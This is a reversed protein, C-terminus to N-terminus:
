ANMLKSIATEALKSLLEQLDQPKFAEYIDYSDDAVLVTLDLAHQYWHGPSMAENRLLNLIEKRTLGVSASEDLSKILWLATEECLSHYWQVALVLYRSRITELERQRKVDEPGNAQEDLALWGGPHTLVKKLVKRAQEANQVVVRCSERKNRVFEKVRHQEAISKETPNLRAMNVEPSARGTTASASALMDKWKNFSQYAKLYELIAYHETVANEVQRTYEEESITDQQPRTTGAKDVLDGPLYDQVFLMAVEMKDDEHDLFFGRLLINACILADGLHSEKQLLWGISHCEREDEESTNQELAAPKRISLRVVKRLLHIELEPFLEQIQDLIEQRDGEDHMKALITPFFELIQHEPMFSIYVTLLQWLDPRSAMYQVYKFVLENKIASIGHLTIPTIGVQLSDLYLLLHTLFRLNQVATETTLDAPLSATEGQCFNLIGSKGVMFAAMCAQLKSVGWSQASSSSQLQQVVQAESMGVLGSTMLLQETEHKAFETGPYPLSDAASNRRHDNHWHLLEDEMRGWVGFWLAYLSSFWSKQFCPNQLCASTDNALLSCIAAGEPSSNPDSSFSATTSASTAMQHRGAKWMQRKWLARNPNGITELRVTKTDEDTVANYGHPEGGSWSAARWSQGHSRTLELADEMKGAMILSLSADLLAKDQKPNNQLTTSIEAMLDPITTANSKGFVSSVPRPAPLVVQDLCEEMWLLLQYKRRLVLPVTSSGTLEQILEHPTKEVQSALQQLYVTQAATHQSASVSDNDWILASQGLRRLRALLIWCNGEEFNETSFGISALSNLWDVEARTEQSALSSSSLATIATSGGPAGLAQAQQELGMRHDLSRKAKVFNYLTDHHRKFVHYSSTALVAPSGSFTSRFPSSRQQLTLAGAAPKFPTQVPPMPVDENDDDDDEIVLQRSSSSLGLSFPLRPDRKEKQSSNSMVPTEARELISTRGKRRTAPTKVPTVPNDDDDDDDVDMVGGGDAIRATRKNTGTTSEGGEKMEQTWWDMADMEYFRAAPSAPSARGQPVHVPKGLQPSTFQELQASINAYAKATVDDDEDIDM